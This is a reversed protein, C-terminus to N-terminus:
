TGRGWRLPCATRLYVFGVDDNRRQQLRDNRFGKAFPLDVRDPHDLTVRSPSTPGSHPHQAVADSHPQIEGRPTPARICMM